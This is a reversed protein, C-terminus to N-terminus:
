RSAALVLKLCARFTFFLRILRLTVASISVREYGHSRVISALPIADDPASGLRLSAGNEQARQQDV